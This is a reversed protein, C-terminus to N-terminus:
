RARSRGTALVKGDVAVRVRLQRSVAPDGSRPDGAGVALACLHWPREYGHAARRLAALLQRERRLAPRRASVPPRARDRDAVRPPDRPRRAGGPRAACLLDAGAGVPVRNPGLPILREMRPPRPLRGGVDCCFLRSWTGDYYRFEDAIAYWGAFRAPLPADRELTWCDTGDAGRCATLEHFSTQSAPVGPAAAFGGEWSGPAVSVVRDVDAQAIVPPASATVPGVM